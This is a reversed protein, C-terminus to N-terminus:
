TTFLYLFVAGDETIFFYGNTLPTKTFRLAPYRPVFLSLYDSNEAGIFSERISLPFWDRIFNPQIMLEGLPKLGTVDSRIQQLTTDEYNLVAILAWDNPGLGISKDGKQVVEWLVSIPEEPLTIFQKLKAVDTETNSQTATMTISGDQCSTMTLIFLFTIICKLTFNLM